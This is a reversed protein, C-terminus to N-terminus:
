DGLDLANPNATAASVLLGDEFRLTEPAAGGVGSKVGFFGFEIGRTHLTWTEIEKGEETKKEVRVPMGVVFFAQRKTMGNLLLRNGIAQRIEAPWEPHEEQLPQRSFALEFARQFDQLSQIGVFRLVTDHDDAPGVGELEVEVTGEEEEWDLEDLKVPDNIRVSWVTSQAHFWGFSAGDQTQTNVSTPSIEVLPSQYVGYPHRGQTCPADVRLYLTSSFMQKAAKKDQRSIGATAPAALGLALVGAVILRDRGKMM